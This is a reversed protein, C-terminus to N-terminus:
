RPPAAPASRSPDPFRYVVEGPHVFGLQERALRELYRDDHRLQHLESRLRQNETLLGAIRQRITTEEATLARLHLLGRTGFVFAAILALSVAAAVLVAFRQRM